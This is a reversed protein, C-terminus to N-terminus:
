RHRMFHRHVLKILYTNKLTYQTTIAHIDTVSLQSRFVLNERRGQTKDRTGTSYIGKM